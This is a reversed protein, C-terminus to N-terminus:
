LADEIQIITQNLCFEKLYKLELFTPNLLLYQTNSLLRDM